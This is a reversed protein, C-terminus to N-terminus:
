RFTNELFGETRARSEDLRVSDVRSFLGFKMRDRANKDDDDSGAGAACLERRLQYVDVDDERSIRIARSHQEDEGPPPETSKSTGSNRLGSFLTGFTSNRLRSEGSIRRRNNATPLTEESSRGRLLVRKIEGTNVPPAKQDENTSVDWSNRKLADTLRKVPGSLITGSGSRM